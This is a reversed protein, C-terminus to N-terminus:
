KRELIILEVRNNIVAAGKQAPDILPKSGGFGRPELRNTDIGWQVLWDRVAQARKDTLDQDKDADKPQVHATIRLRVIESHARLTAAIQGLVNFSGKAIKATNGTFQIADLLELRDPSVVVLSDGKDPCGDEDQYGNITEPENPCKDMADPIGDRDNDLDPCGDLDEFGDKDEPQNPCKDVSDPIGDGDNDKDPCGDADQFGDKDEPDLPCKDVADPIGDGDNDPDPCGDQDDFMDKDEPENPCKDISDPIGDGDADGDVPRPLLERVAPVAAAAPVFALSLVGRFDPAGIGDVLGHGAALGLTVRRDIRVHAGLMGEMPSVAKMQNVGLDAEGFLEADVWLRDLAHFAVGVGYALGSGQQIDALQSKARLIGGLNADVSIRGRTYAALAYLRGSPDSVGAFENNSATPLTLAAGAGIVLGMPMTYLRAKGSLTLDGIATGSPPMVGSFQPNDGSQDFLPLRASVEFRNLFAYAGGLEIMSRATIPTDTMGGGDISLPNTAYSFVAGLAWDGNNGVLPSQLSFTDTVTAPTPDFTTLDLNRTPDAHAFSALALVGVASAAIAVAARRRRLALGLAGIAGLLGLGDGRGGADCGGGHVDVDVASATVPIMGQPVTDQDLYVAISTTFTGAETPTFTLDYSDTAEPALMANSPANDIEFVDDGTLDLERITFTHTPDMSAIDILSGRASLSIPVGVGSTGLDINGPGVMVDRAIANGHLVVQAMADGTTDNTIQLTSSLMMGSSTPSFKVMFTTSGMPAVDQSSGDALTFAADGDLMVASIHLIAGGTNMVTVPMTPAQDGPNRFTDPFTLDTPVSIHRDLGTGSVAIVQDLMGNTATIIGDLHFTVTANSTMEMTPAYSIQVVLPTAPTITAPTTPLTVNIGSGTPINSTISSITLNASGTNTFTVTQTHASTDQIDIGGFAVVGNAPDLGLSASESVVTATLSHTSGIMLNSQVTLLENSTGTHSKPTCQVTITLVDSADNPQLTVPLTVGHTSEHAIDTITFDGTQAMMLTTMIGTISVAAQGTNSVTFTQTATGDFRMTGFDLTNTSLAFGVSRATGSLTVVAMTHSSAGWDGTITLTGSGGDSDMTPAFIVNTAQTESAGAALSPPLPTTGDISYGTGGSFTAQINTVAQNGSNSLTFARTANSGENVPGFTLTSPSASLVGADGTCTLGVDITSNDVLSNSTIRFNGSVSGSTQPDCVISWSAASGVSLSTMQTGTAGTMATYSTAGSTFGANSITLTATGDNTVTITKAASMTMIPLDGFALMTVNPSAHQAVGSGSLAVDLEPEDFSTNSSSLKLTGAFSGTTTPDFTVSITSTGGNSGVTCTPSCSATYGTVPTINLTDAVNGNNTVTFTMAASTTNILQNGFALMTTATTSAPRGATCSLTASATGGAGSDSSYTITATQPGTAGAPVICRVPVSASGGGAIALPAFTCSTAGLCSGAFTIWTGASTLTASAITLTGTGTNEVNANTTTTAGDDTTAFTLADAKIVPTVGNGSLAVTVTPTTPDSSTITLTATRNGTASPSFDIVISTNADNSGITAPTSPSIISFDNMNTGGLALSTITLTENGTNTVLVSGAEASASGVRWDSYTYTLPSVSITPAQGEATVMFTGLSASSADLMTVTCTLNGRPMTTVKATVTQEPSDTSMITAPLAPATISVASCGTGAISFSAITDSTDNTQLSAGASADAGVQVPGIDITSGPLVNITGAGHASRGWALGAVLVGLVLWRKEIM